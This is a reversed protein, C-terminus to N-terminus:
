DDEDSDGDGGRGRGRGRGSSDDGSETETGTTATTTAPPAAPATATTTSTKAPKQPAPAPKKTVATAPVLERGATLPESDLGIDENTLHSAAMTLGVAVALGFLGTLTLLVLRRVGALRSPGGAHPERHTM